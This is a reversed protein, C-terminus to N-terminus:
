PSPQKGFPALATGLPRPGRGVALAEFPASPVGDPRRGLRAFRQPGAAAWQSPSSRGGIPPPVVCYCNSSRAWTPDERRMSRVPGGTGRGGDRWSSSVPCGHPPSPPHSPGRSRSVAISSMALAGWARSSREAGYGRPAFRFTGEARGAAPSWNASDATGAPQPTRSRATPSPAGARPIGAAAARARRSTRMRSTATWRRGTSTVSIRRVSYRALDTEGRAQGPM